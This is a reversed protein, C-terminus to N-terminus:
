FAAFEVLMPVKESVETLVLFSCSWFICCERIFLTKACDGGSSSVGLFWVGCGFGFIQRCSINKSEQGMLHGPLIMILLVELWGGFLLVLFGHVVL